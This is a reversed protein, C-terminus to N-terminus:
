RTFTGNFPPLMRAHGNSNVPVYLLLEFVCLVDM